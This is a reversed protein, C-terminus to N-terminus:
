KETLQCILIMERYCNDTQRDTLRYSETASVCIEQKNTPVHLDFTM